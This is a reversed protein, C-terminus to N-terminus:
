WFAAIWTHKSFGGVHLTMLGVHDALLKTSMRCTMNSGAQSCRCGKEGGAQARKSCHKAVRVVLTDHKSAKSSSRWISSLCCLKKLYAMCQEASVQALRTPVATQKFCMDCPHLTRTMLLMCYCYCTAPLPTKPGASLPCPTRHPKALAQDVLFAYMLPKVGSSLLGEQRRM